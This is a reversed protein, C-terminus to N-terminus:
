FQSIEYLCKIEEKDQFILLESIVLNTNRSEIWPIKERKCNSTNLDRDKEVPNCVHVDKNLYRVYGKARAIM